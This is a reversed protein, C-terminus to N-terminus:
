QTIEYAPYVDDLRYGLTEALALSAHDHADWNPQLGKELCALILAAGCAQALGQRRQDNRTDIQIEIGGPYGLYSSAGAVVEDGRMAVVGLGYKEYLGYNPFNGCLDRSWLAGQTKLFLERDIRRIHYGAPLAAAFSQLAPEDFGGDQVRTAYRTFHVARGAYEEEVLAAWEDDRPVIIASTPTVGIHLLEANPDGALFQIDGVVIKGSRPRAEDDAYAKGMIGQLCPQVFNQRWGAFLPALVSADKLKRMTM